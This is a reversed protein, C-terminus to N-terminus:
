KLKPTDKGIILYDTIVKEYLLLRFLTKKRWGEGIVYTDQTTSQQHYELYNHIGQGYNSVIKIQGKLDTLPYYCNKEFITGDKFKIRIIYVGHVTLKGKYHLKALDTNARIYEASEISDTNFLVYRRRADALYMVFSTDFFQYLLGARTETEQDQIELTPEDKQCGLFLSYICVSILLIFALKKM